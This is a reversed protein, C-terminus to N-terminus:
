VTLVDIASCTSNSLGPLMIKGIWFRMDSTLFVEFVCGDWTMLNLGSTNLIFEMLLYVGCRWRKRAKPRQWKRGIAAMWAEDGCCAMHDRWLEFM